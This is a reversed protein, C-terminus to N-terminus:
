RRPRCRTPPVFIDALEPHIQTRGGRIAAEVELMMTKYDLTGDKNLFMSEFSQGKASGLSKAFNGLDRRSQHFQKFM